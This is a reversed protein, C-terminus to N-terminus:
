RNTIIWTGDALPKAAHQLNVFLIHPDKGFYIGTGEAASDVMSAFLHVGDAAGNRNTDFDTVWIDSPVNDEVIWLRGDPGEALNDPNNFGTVEAEADEIRVNRGAQVFTSVTRNNLDIAIVRDETTNAVYLIHNILEMDEPRGYETAHVADAAANANISVMAQDLAVWRFPGVHQNGSDWVQQADNIGIIQLAYLQGSSLDGRRDPVFRYISGGNLEDVVYVAGDPGVEIGEHRMRGVEPRDKVELATMLDTPDLIIEYLHGFDQTGVVPEELEEEAFLITQWPTWRIGDLDTASVLEPFAPDGEQVLVQPAREGYLDVVSVSGLDEVEHTRYLYRGAERGNENVTNMDDLDSEGPYIDLDTEDSVKFQSFGEPIVFPVTWSDTLLGYASGPIPEFGMPGGVTQQTAMASVAVLSVM